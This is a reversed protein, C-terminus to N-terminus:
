DDYIPRVSMTGLAPAAVFLQAVRCVPMIKISVTNLPEDNKLKM